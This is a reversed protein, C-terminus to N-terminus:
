VLTRTQLGCHHLAASIVVHGPVRQCTATDSQVAPQARAVVGYEGCGRQVQQGLQVATELGRSLFQQRRPAFALGTEICALQRIETGVGAGDTFAVPADCRNRSRQLIATDLDGARHFALHDDVRQVRARLHEHGVELVGGARGPGVHHFALDVQTIRHRARDRERGGREGVARRAPVVRQFGVGARHQEHAWAAPVKGLLVQADVALRDGAAQEVEGQERQVVGAGQVRPVAARVEVQGLQLRHFLGREPVLHHSEELHAQRQRDPRHLRRHQDLGQRGHELHVLDQVRELAADGPEVAPAPIVDEGVELGEAPMAIPHQGFAALDVHAHGEELGVGFQQDVGAVLAARVRHAAHRRLNRNRAVGGRVFRSQRSHPGVLLTFGPGPM